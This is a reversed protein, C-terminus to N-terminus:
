SMIAVGAASTIRDYLASISLFLKRLLIINLFEWFYSQVDRNSM